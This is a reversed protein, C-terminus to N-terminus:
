RGAGPGAGPDAPPVPLPGPRERGLGAPSADILTDILDPAADDSTEPLVAASRPSFPGPGLQALLELARRECTPLQHHSM